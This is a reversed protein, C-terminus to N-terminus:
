TFFEKNELVYARILGCLDEEYAFFASDCEELIEEAEENDEILEDREDRDAPVEGDYISVAKKCIEATKVAGIAAFADVVENALEGSSNFFFQSFGGNNVEAELAQCVYVVREPRSLASIEEGYRCKKGLWESLALVFDTENDLNLLEEISMRAPEEPAPAKKKGFIKDLLGMSTEEQEKRIRIAYEAQELQGCFRVVEFSWTQAIEGPCCAILKGYGSTLSRTYGDALTVKGGNPGAALKVEPIRSVFPFVQKLRERLDAAATAQDGAAIQAKFTERREAFWLWFAEMDAAEAEVEFFHPNEGSLIQETMTKTYPFVDLRQKRLETLSKKANKKDGIAAYAMAETAQRGPMEPFIEATKKLAAMAEDLQHMMLLCGGLSNYSVALVKRGTDDQEFRELCSIGALYLQEAAAYNGESYANQAMKLYPVYFDPYYEVCKQYCALAQEKDRYVEFYNGEAFWYLCRDVDTVCANKVGALAELAIDKKYSRIAGFACGYYLKALYDECFGRALTSGISQELFRWAFQYKPEQLVQKADEMTLDEIDM